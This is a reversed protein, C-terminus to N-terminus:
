LYEGSTFTNDQITSWYHDRLLDNVPGDGDKILCCDPSGCILYKEFAEHLCIQSQAIPHIKVYSNIVHNLLEPDTISFTREGYLDIHVKPNIQKLFWNDQRNHEATLLDLGGLSKAVASRSIPFKELKLTNFSKDILYELSSEMLKEGNTIHVANSIVVEQKQDESIDNEVKSTTLQLLSKWISSPTLRFDSVAEMAPLLCSVRAPLSTGIGMGIAFLCSLGAATSIDLAIVGVSFLGVTLAELNPNILENHDNNQM